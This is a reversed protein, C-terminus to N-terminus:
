RPAGPHRRAGAHTVILLAHLGAFHFQQGVTTKAAPGLTPDCAPDCVPDPRPDTMAPSM